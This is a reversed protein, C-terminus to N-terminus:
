SYATFLGHTYLALSGRDLLIIRSIRLSRVVMTIRFVVMPSGYNDRCDFENNWSTRHRLIDGESLKEDNILEKKNKAKLPRLAIESLTRRIFSTGIQQYKPFDKIERKDATIHPQGWDCNAM